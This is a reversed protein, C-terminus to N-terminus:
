TDWGEIPGPYLAHARRTAVADRATTFLRPAYAGALMVALFLVTTM